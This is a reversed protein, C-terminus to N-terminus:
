ALITRVYREIQKTKRRNFKEETEEEEKTM